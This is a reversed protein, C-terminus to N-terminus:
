RRVEASIITVPNEGMMMHYPGAKRANAATLSLVEPQSGLGTLCAVAEQVTELTIANIVARFHDTKDLAAQFIEWLKGGSGGIFLRDPPPLEELGAPAESELIVTNYAGLRKRNDHLLAIAEPQREVAYVMGEYARRAMAVTMAGTGAGIDWVVDAPCIGLRDVSIARVTEKTMPIGGRVFDQDRPVLWPEVADPNEVLLVALGPLELSIGEGPTVTLIREEMTSLEVGIHVTVHSLGCQVLRSCIAAPTSQKDTLIFVKRHYSVAAEIWARRGHLSLVRVDDYPMGLRGSLYSLSSVGNIMRVEYLGDFREKILRSVSFFGVDGSVLVAADCSRDERLWAMIEGIQGAPVERDNRMTWGLRSSAAYLRPVTKMIRRAEKTLLERSGPGGGVVYIVPLM